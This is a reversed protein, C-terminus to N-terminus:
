MHAKERHRISERKNWKVWYITKTQEVITWVLYLNLFYWNCTVICNRIAFWGANWRCRTKSCGTSMYVLCTPQFINNAKFLQHFKFVFELWNTLPMNYMYIWLLLLSGLQRRMGATITIQLGLSYKFNLKVCVYM